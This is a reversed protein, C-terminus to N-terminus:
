PTAEERYAIEVESWFLNKESLAAVDYAMVDATHPWLTGLLFDARPDALERVLDRVLKAQEDLWSKTAAGPDPFKAIVILAVRFENLDEGRNGPGVVSYGAGFVYVNTGRLADLKLPTLYERSATTGPPKGTLAAIKAAVGDAVEAIERLM